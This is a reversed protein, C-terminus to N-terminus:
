IWLDSAELLHLLTVGHSLSEKLSDFYSCKYGEGSGDGSLTRKKFQLYLTHYLNASSRMSTELFIGMHATNRTKEFCDMRDELAKSKTTTTLVKKKSGMRVMAQSNTHFIHEIESAEHLCCSQGADLRICHLCAKWAECPSALGGDQRANSHAGTKHVLILRDLPFSVIGNNLLMGRRHDNLVHSFVEKGNADRISVFFVLQNELLAPSKPPTEFV